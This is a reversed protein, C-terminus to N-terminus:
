IGRVCLEFDIDGYLDDMKPCDFEFDFPNDHPFKNYKQLNIKIMILVRTSVNKLKM